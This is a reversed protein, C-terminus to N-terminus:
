NSKPSSIEGKNYDPQKKIYIFGAAMSLFYFLIDAMHGKMIQFRFYKQGTFLQETMM